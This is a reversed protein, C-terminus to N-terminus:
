TTKKEILTTLYSDITNQVPIQISIVKTEYSRMVNSIVQNDTMTIFKDKNISHDSDVLLRSLAETVISGIMQVVKPDKMNTVDDGEADYQIYRAIFPDNLFIRLKIADDRKLVSYKYSPNVMRSFEINFKFKSDYVRAVYPTEGASGDDFNGNEIIHTSLGQTPKTTDYITEIADVPLESAPDKPYGEPRLLKIERAEATVFNTRVTNLTRIYPADRAARWSQINTNSSMLQTGFQELNNMLDNIDNSKVVNKDLDDQVGHIYFEFHVQAVLYLQRIFPHDVNVGAQRSPDL